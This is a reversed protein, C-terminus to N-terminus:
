ANKVRTHISHSFIQSIKIQLEAPLTRWTEETIEKTRIKGEAMYEDLLANLKSQNGASESNDDM